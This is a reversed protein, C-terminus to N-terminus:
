ILTSGSSSVIRSGGHRRSWGRRAFFFRPPTNKPTKALTSRHPRSSRRSTAIRRERQLHRRRSNRPLERATAVNHRRSEQMSNTGQVNRGNHANRHFNHAFTTRANTGGPYLETDAEGLDDLCEECHKEQWQCPRQDHPIARSCDAEPANRSM